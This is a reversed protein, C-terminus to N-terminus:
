DLAERIAGLLQKFAFPKHVFGKAGMNLFEQVTEGVAYGSCLIVKVEKNLSQLELLTDKGSIRPM